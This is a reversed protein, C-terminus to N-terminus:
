ERIGRLTNATQLKDEARTRIDRRLPVPLLPFFAVGVAAGVPTRLWSECPLRALCATIAEPASERVVFANRCDHTDCAWQGRARARQKAHETGTHDTEAAALDGCAAHRLDHKSDQIVLFPTSGSHVGRVLAFPNLHRDAPPQTAQALAREIRRTEEMSLCTTTGRIGFLAGVTALADAIAQVAGREAELETERPRAVQARAHGALGLIAASLFPAIHARAAMLEAGRLAVPVDQVLAGLWSDRPQVVADLVAVVRPTVPVCHKHFSNLIRLLPLTRWHVSGFWEPRPTMVATLAFTDALFVRAERVNDGVMGMVAAMVAPSGTIEKAVRTAVFYEVHHLLAALAPRIADSEWDGEPLKPPATNLEAARSAAACWNRQTAM